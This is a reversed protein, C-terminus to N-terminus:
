VLWEGPLNFTAKVAARRVVQDCEAGHAFDEVLEMGDWGTNLNEQHITVQINIHSRQREGKRSSPTNIKRLM